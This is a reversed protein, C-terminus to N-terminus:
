RCFYEEIIRFISHKLHEVQRLTKAFVSITEKDLKSNEHETSLHHLKDLVEIQKKSDKMRQSETGEVAVNNLYDVKFSLAAYTAM